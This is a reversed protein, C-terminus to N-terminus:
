IIARQALRTTMSIINVNLMAADRDVLFYM